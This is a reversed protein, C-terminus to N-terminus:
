IQIMKLIMELEEVNNIKGHFMTIAEYDIVTKIQSYYLKCNVGIEVIKSYVEILYISSPELIDIQRFGLEEFQEKTIM